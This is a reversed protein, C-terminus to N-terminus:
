FSLGIGFNLLDPIDTKAKNNTITYDAKVVANSLLKLGIGFTLDNRTLM